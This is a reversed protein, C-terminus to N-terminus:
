NAPGPTAPGALKDALSNRPAPTRRAIVDDLATMLTFDNPQGLPVLLVFRRKARTMNTYLEERTLTTALATTEEGPAGGGPTLYNVVIPAESGQMKKSTICYARVLNEPTYDRSLNLRTLEGEKEADAFELMRATTNAPGLRRATVHDHEGLVRRSPEHVDTIRTLTKIKGNFVDDSDMGDADNAGADDDDDDGDDSGFYRNRRFSVREGVRLPPHAVGATGAAGFLFDYVIRNLLACDRHRQTIMQMGCNAYLLARARGPPPLEVGDLTHTILRAVVGALAAPRLAQIILRADRRSLDSSYVLDAFGTTADRRRELVVKMNWHIAMDEDLRPRGGARAGESTEAGSLFRHPIALETYRPRGCAAEADRFREVLSDFFAGAGIADMQDPDGTIVIRAIGRLYGTRGLGLLLHGYTVLGGEDILLTTMTPLMSEPTATRHIGRARHFTEARGLRQRLNEVIRGYPALPMCGGPRWVGGFLYVLAKLTDTKGTGPPGSIVSIPELVARHVARRQYVDLRAYADQFDPSSFHLPGPRKAEICAIVDEENVCNAAHVHRRWQHQAVRNLFALVRTHAIYDDGGYIIPQAGEIARKIATFKDALALVGLDRLMEGLQAATPLDPPTKLQRRLAFIHRVNFAHRRRRGVHRLYLEPIAAAPAYTHGQDRSEDLAGGVVEVLMAERLMTDQDDCDLLTELTCLQQSDIAPAGDAGGKTAAVSWPFALTALAVSGWEIADALQLFRDLKLALLAAQPWIYFLLPARLLRLLPEDGDSATAASLLDVIEYREDVTWAETALLGPSPFKLQARDVGIPIAQVIVHEMEGNHHSRRPVAYIDYTVHRLLGPMRSTPTGFLRATMCYPHWRDTMPDPPELRFVHGDPDSVFACTGHFQELSRPYILRRLQVGPFFQVGAAKACGSRLRQEVSPPLRCWNGIAGSGRAPAQWQPSKSFLSTLSIGDDIADCEM